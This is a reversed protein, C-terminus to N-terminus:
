DPREIEFTQDPEIDRALWALAATIAFQAVFLLALASVGTIEWISWDSM